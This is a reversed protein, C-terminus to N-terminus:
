PRSVGTQRTVAAWGRELGATADIPVLPGCEGRVMAQALEAALIPAAFSTGSWTGFGGSFNDPDITARDHGDPDVFAISPQESGNFTVPFTSVLAAGPRWNTVWDGGNSFLAVTGDPNLAGVSLV